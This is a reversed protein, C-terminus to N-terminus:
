FGYSPGDHIAIGAGCRFHEVQASQLTRHGGQQGLPLQQALDRSYYEVDNGVIRQRGDVDRMHARLFRDVDQGNALVSCTDPEPQSSRALWRVIRWRVLGRSSMTPACRIRM